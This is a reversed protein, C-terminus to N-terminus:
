TGHIDEKSCGEGYEVWVRKMLESATSFDALMAKKNVNAFFFIIGTIFCDVWGNSYTYNQKSLKTNNNNNNNNNRQSQL